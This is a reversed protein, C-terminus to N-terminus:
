NTRVYNLIVQNFVENQKDIFDIEIPIYFLPLQKLIASFEPINLRVFDKETTIIIKKETAITTFIKQITQIDNPTFNHHDAFTLHEINSTYKEIQKKLPKPNAIGTVLLVEVQSSLKTEFAFTENNTFSVLNGYKIFSFFLKQNTKLKLSKEIRKKEAATLNIPCKTAIIINARAAGLASERLNGVPLIFDNVYLKSYDTLLINLGAKVARHQFADDLLVVKLQEYKNILQQIGNVRKEDVAVTIAEFKKKFQLPEDGIENAISNKEVELFGKTNRGYGRSLTALAFDNKLLRILYEIHPTKGTGGTSLNGVVITKINFAYSKIFKIDYLRNRIITACAYLLAFPFLLFRFFKM